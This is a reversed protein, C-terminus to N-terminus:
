SVRFFAVGGQFLANWNGIYALTGLDRYTFGKTTTTPNLSSSAPSPQPDIDSNIDAKNFRKALWFAKQSAVQATAPYSTSEIIGCDGLAFVDPHIAEISANKSDKSDSFSSEPVLKVRLHDDTIISGSKADKKVVWKVSSPSVTAPDSTPSPIHLNTPAERVDSLASAVFPNQMLGTSWVCMGVGIEGEEKVKLTYLYEQGVDYPQSREAPAGPRLEEVHHSTKIQIGERKFKQMAYDALKKDFMPLVKEAVDYVTINHYQILEPYLRRMDENILDHLEASFEIGTPGGGVVAFNLLQKKMEVSTTPLAAGEFCALIRNRIKRADGVDKLFFAHEKVGPTGFTQSYCGVTVILKDYNVDFLKGTKVEKKKEESRQSPTEDAHRDAALAVSQRADDVAQEITITKNKFDVDDAWGQIFEVKTRRSRVPELATRFELTGVATSALLPTFAFYSRPSIVLAQYKSSDLTRAVTFGAWGSGLVVVRERDNRAKDLQEITIARRQESVKGGVLAGTRANGHLGGSSRSVLERPVFPLRLM